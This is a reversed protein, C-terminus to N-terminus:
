EHITVRRTLTGRDTSLQILYIGNSPTGINIRTETGPLHLFEGQSVLRGSLDILTWEVTQEAINALEINLHDSAPNPYLELSVKKNENLSAPANVQIKFRNETQLTDIPFTLVQLYGRIGVELNHEQVPGTPTGFIRVCGNTGGPWSCTANDCNFSLGAPLNNILELRFSDVTASVTTGAFVISTDSPIGVQIVQDYMTGIEADPLNVTADGNVTSGAPPFIGPATISADPTCQGMTGYASFVILLSLLLRKM